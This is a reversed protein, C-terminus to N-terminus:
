QKPTEEPPPQNKYKEAEKKREISMRESESLPIGAKQKIDIIMDTAPYFIENSEWRAHDLFAVAEIYREEKICDLAKLRMLRANSFPENMEKWIAKAEDLLRKSEERAIQAALPDTTEEARKAAAESDRERMLGKNRLIFRPAVINDSNKALYDQWGALADEYQENLELCLYLQRPVWKDHRYRIAESLYRVANRYDQLKNKYIAFGLDFYLKYNRTNKRIGDKLFDIAMYYYREKDGLRVKYKPDWEKLHEPTDLM